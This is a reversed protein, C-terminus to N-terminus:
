GLASRIWIGVCYTLVIVIVAIFLHEIIVKWPRKNQQKAIYFSFLSLLSLGWVLSAIIAQTLPLMLLPVLFTIVFIFKFLMTSITAEWVEKTTYKGEAEEAIHIGVADSLADAIAIILVGGIVVNRLGLGSYLGVILGLTTITGTTLGFSFGKKISDKLVMCTM